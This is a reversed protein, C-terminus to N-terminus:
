VNLFFYFNKQSTMHYIVPFGESWAKMNLVNREEDGTQGGGVSLASKSSKKIM